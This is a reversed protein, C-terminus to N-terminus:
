VFSEENLLVPSFIPSFKNIDVVSDDYNEKVAKSSFALRLDKCICLFIFHSQLSNDLFAFDM